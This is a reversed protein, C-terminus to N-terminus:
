LAREIAKRTAPPVVRDKALTQDDFIERGRSLRRKKDCSRVREYIMVVALVIRVLLLIWPFQIHM